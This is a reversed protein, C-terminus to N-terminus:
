IKQSIGHWDQLQQLQKLRTRQIEVASFVSEIKADESILPLTCEVEHFFRSKQIESHSFSHQWWEMIRNKSVDLLGLTPLKDLKSRNAKESSPMLNWLDNNPWRSFPFCHDIEYKNKLNKGTWVCYVPENRKRIEEVITRIERTDRHPELWLLSNLYFEYPLNRGKNNKYSQMLVIWEYIISPEIWVANHCMTNWINKPVIFEGFDNM